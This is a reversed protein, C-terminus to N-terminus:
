LPPVAISAPCLLYPLRGPRFSARVQLAWEAQPPECNTPPVASRFPILGARVAVMLGAVIEFRAM